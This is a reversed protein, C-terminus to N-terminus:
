GIPESSSVDNRTGDPHRRGRLWRGGAFAAATAGVTLTLLIPTWAAMAAVGFRAANVVIEVAAVGLPIILVVGFRIDARRYAAVVGLVLGVLVAM